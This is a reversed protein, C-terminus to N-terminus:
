VNKQAKDETPDELAFGDTKVVSLALFVCGTIFLSDILDHGFLINFMGMLAYTQVFICAFALRMKFKEDKPARLAFLLPSCLLLLSALLGIVGADVAATFYGNHFHTSVIHQQPCVVGGKAIVMAKGQALIDDRKGFGYGLLPQEKILCIARDYLQMRQYFSSDEPSQGSSINEVLVGLSGARQKITDSTASVGLGLVLVATFIGFVRWRHRSVSIAYIMVIGINAAFAIYMGRTLSLVLGISLLLAGITAIIQHKRDADFVGLLAIPALIGCVMAFPIENGSGGAMRQGLWFGEYLLWPLLIFGSYGAFRIFMSFYDVNKVLRFNVLVFGISIFIYPKAWHELDSFEFDSRIYSGWIVLLYLLGPIVFWLDSKLLVFKRHKLVLLFGTTAAIIVLLSLISGVASVLTAMALIFISNRGHLTSWNTAKFISMIEHAPNIYLNPTTCHTESLLVTFDIGFDIYKEYAKDDITWEIKVCFNQIIPGATLNTHYVDDGVVMAYIVTLGLM